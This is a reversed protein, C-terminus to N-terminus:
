LKVQGALASDIIAKDFGPVVSIIFPYSADAPGEGPPEQGTSLALYRLYGSYAGATSFEYVLSVPAENRVIDYWIPFEAVPFWGSIFPAWPNGDSYYGVVQSGTWGDFSTSFAILARLVLGHYMPASAFQLTRTRRTETPGTGFRELDTTAKYSDIVFSAMTM